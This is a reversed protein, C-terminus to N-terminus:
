RSSIERFGFSSTPMSTSITVPPQRIRGACGRRGVPPLSRIPNPTEQSLGCHPPLQGGNTIGACAPIWGRRQFQIGAQALIVLTPTVERGEVPEPRVPNPCLPHRCLRPFRIWGSEDHQVQKLM